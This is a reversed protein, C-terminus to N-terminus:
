SYLHKTVAAVVECENVEVLTAKRKISTTSYMNAQPCLAITNRTLLPTTVPGVEDYM